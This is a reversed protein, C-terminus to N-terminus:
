FKIKSSPINLEKSLKAAIFQIIEEKSKKDIVFNSIQSNVSETEKLNDLRPWSYVIDLSDNIFAQKNANRQIKGSSTKQITKSKIFIIKYPLIGHMMLISTKVIEAIEDWNINQKERVEAVIILQEEDEFECSFAAVSGTRILEHSKEITLEIDQPYHNTGRIIILDKIRGTIFLEKKLIFGLDGTRTFPGENSNNIFANFIEKSIEPKNWYGISNSESKTM